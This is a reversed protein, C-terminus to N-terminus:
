IQYLKWHVYAANLSLLEEYRVSYMEGAPNQLNGEDDFEDEWKDYCLLGYEFADLGESEFAEKVEQAIVGYHWRAKEKKANVAHNFKYQKFKVKGWARLASEPIEQIQQKYNADSTNITGNIAFVETWRVGAVGLSATNNSIPRVAGLSRHDQAFRQNQTTGEYLAFFHNATAPDSWDFIGTLGNGSFKFGEETLESATDAVASKAITSNIAKTTLEMGVNKVEWSKCGTQLNIAPNFDNTPTTGAHRPSAGDILTYTAIADIDVCYLYPMTFRNNLLVNNKGKIYIGRVLSATGGSALTGQTTNTGGLQGEPGRVACGVISNNDAYQLQIVYNAYSSLTTNGGCYFFECNLLYLRFAALEQAALNTADGAFLACCDTRAARCTDFTIIGCELYPTSTTLVGNDVYYAHGKCFEVSVQTLKTSVTNKSIYVGIGPEQYVQVRDLLTQVCNRIFIAGVTGNVSGSSTWRISDSGYIEIDRMTFCSKNDCTIVWGGTFDAVLRTGINETASLSQGFGDGYITIGDDPITLGSTLRYVGDPIYVVSKGGSAANIANQIKDASNVAGTPDAGFDLVNLVDAFRDNLLRAVAAAGNGSSAGTTAAKFLSGVVYTEGTTGSITNWQAQTTTGLSTIKYQQNVIFSGASVGTSGTSVIGTIVNQTAKTLAM